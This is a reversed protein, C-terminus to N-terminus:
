NLLKKLKIDYKKLKNYLISNEVALPSGGKFETGTSTDIEIEKSKKIGTSDEGYASDATDYTSTDFNSGDSEDSNEQPNESENSLSQYKAERKLDKILLERQLNKDHDTMNFINEYIWDSSILNTEKISKALDIKKNWTELKEQEYISSPKILNVKIDLIENLEIGQAYLHIIGLNLLEHEVIRQIREITKTFRLDEQALTAKGSVAEDFTLFAKPIRLAALMKNKLYNIDEIANYELGGLTEIATGSDNGRVPIFFDEQLNEMNYMLNYDGTTNDVFPVKKIKNIFEQMFYKVETAPLNGTDVKFIRKQPARMIRHILMADEMLSLQKWIKRAPEIMSKGYPLFNSDTILRLHCMEYSEYTGKLISSDSVVFKVENTKYPNETRTVYYTSIPNVNVIGYGDAIDLKLYWDGYKVLNRIWHFLNFEINLIDYYFNELISKIKENSTSIKLMNGFEDKSTCEEAYLDCASAIIPDLDMLEYDNFLSIRQTNLGGTYGTNIYSNLTSYVGAFTRNLYNTPTNAMAQNNYVDILKLSNNNVNRLVVGGNYISKLKNFINNAM